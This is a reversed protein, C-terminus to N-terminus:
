RAETEPAGRTIRWLVGTRERPQSGAKSMTMVGFDVVYLTRGDPSFKLATPRELGQTRLLSAPGNTRGRNAAFDHIVGTKTDVRVVKFGVPAIVKGAGPAMDGFQAVFAEGAFGFAQPAFDIGNSASHVGLKAVPRQPANPHEALLFKPAPKGPPQFHDSWTLPLEGHFDPWGYWTGPTIRWLLDGTGYVPRSGRVDYSNETAFLSGDSAFALGYPNRL